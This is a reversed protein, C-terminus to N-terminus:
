EMAEEPQDQLSAKNFAVSNLPLPDDPHRDALQLNIAEAAAFDGHSSYQDSLYTTYSSGGRACRAKARIRDEIAKINKDFATRNTRTLKRYWYDVEPLVERDFRTPPRKM